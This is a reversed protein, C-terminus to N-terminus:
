LNNRAFWSAVSHADSVVPNRSNVCVYCGYLSDVLIRNFNSTSCSVLFCRMSM